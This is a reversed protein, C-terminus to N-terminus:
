EEMVKGNEVKFIKATELLDSNVNDIETTTIFIQLESDILNCYYIRESLIVKNLYLISRLMKYMSSKYETGLSFKEVRPLKLMIDLMYQIYEEVKPILKLENNKTTNKM